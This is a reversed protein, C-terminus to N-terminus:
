GEYSIDEINVKDYEAHTMVRVIFVLGIRYEIDVVLRYHNGKINFVVRKENIIDASRYHKKIDNPKQWIVKEVEDHWALLPQKAAAHKEAFDLLTKKKIIRMYVYLFTVM